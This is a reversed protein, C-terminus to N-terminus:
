LLGKAVYVPVTGPGSGTLHVNVQSGIQEKVQTQGAEEHQDKRLLYREDVCFGNLAALLDSEGINRRSDHLQHFTEKLDGVRVFNYRFFIDGPRRLMGHVINNTKSSHPYQDLDFGITGCFGEAGVLWLTARQKFEAKAEMEVKSGNEMHEDDLYWHAISQQHQQLQNMVVWLMVCHITQELRDSYITQNMLYRLIISRMEHFPLLAGMSYTLGSPFLITLRTTCVVFPTSSLQARTPPPLMRPQVQSDMPATQQQPRPASLQQPVNPNGYAQQVPPAVIQQQAAWQPSNTHTYTLNNVGAHIRHAASDVLTHGLGSLHERMKARDQSYQMQSSGDNGM